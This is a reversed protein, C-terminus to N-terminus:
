GLRYGLMLAKSSFKRTVRSVAPVCIRDESPSSLYSPGQIGSVM